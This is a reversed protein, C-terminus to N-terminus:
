DPLADERSPAARSPVHRLRALPPSSAHGDPPRPYARPGTLVASSVGTTSRIVKAEVIRSRTPSVGRTRNFRTVSPMAAVTSAFTSYRFGPPEDFSRIAVRMTSAASMPSLSLFSPALYKEWNALLNLFKDAGMIIPAAVFGWHLIQFAQYAPAKAREISRQDPVSLDATTATTM